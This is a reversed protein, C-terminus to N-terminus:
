PDGSSLVTDSISTAVESALSWIVHCNPNGAGGQPSFRAVNPHAPRCVCNMVSWRYFFTVVITNFKDTSPVFVDVEAMVTVVTM